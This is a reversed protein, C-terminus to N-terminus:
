KDCTPFNQIFFNMGDFENITYNECEFIDNIDFNYLNFIKRLLVHKM